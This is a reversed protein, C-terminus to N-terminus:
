AADSVPFRHFVARTPDLERLRRAVGDSAEGLHGVFYGVLCPHRTLRDMQHMVAEGPKGDGGVPVAQVLLIGARDAADYLVDPGYHDRVLLLSEGSAPLLQAENVQDVVVVQEIECIRGNVLLKHEFTQGLARDRRVSALGLTVQREDCVRDGGILRFNMRYLPQGGMGAPWWREPSAIEFRFSGTREQLQLRVKGEDHFGDDGDVDILVEAEALPPQDAQRTLDAAVIHTDIVAMDEDVYRVLPRLSTFRVAPTM